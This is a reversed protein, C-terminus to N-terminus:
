HQRPAQTLAGVPTSRELRLVHVNTTSFDSAGRAGDSSPANSSPAPTAATAEMTVVEIVPGFSRTEYSTYRPSLQVASTLSYTPEVGLRTTLEICSSFRRLQINSTNAAPPVAAVDRKLGFGIGIGVSLGILMLLVVIVVALRQKAGSSPSPAASPDKVQLTVNAAKTAAKPNENSDAVARM